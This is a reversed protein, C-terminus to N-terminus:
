NGLIPLNLQVGWHRRVFKTVECTEVFVWAIWRDGDEVRGCFSPKRRVRPPATSGQGFWFVTFAYPDEIPDDAIPVPGYVIRLHASRDVNLGSLIVIQRKSRQGATKRAQVLEEASIVDKIEDLSRVIGWRAPPKRITRQLKKTSM